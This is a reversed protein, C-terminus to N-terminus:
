SPVDAVIVLDSSAASWAEGTMTGLVESILFGAERLLSERNRGSAM